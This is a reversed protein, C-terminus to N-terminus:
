FLMSGYAPLFIMFDADDVAGDHNFDASCGEPMQPDACLMLDYQASFLLFDADDVQGDANIDAIHAKVKVEVTTSISEGCETVFVAHFLGADSHQINAIELQAPTGDTPSPFSFVAGSVNGGGASAGGPGNVLDVFGSVDDFRQWKAAVGDYSAAPASELHLTEGAVLVAPSPQRAIWPTNTATYRAFYASVNDGAVTFNGGAAFGDPLGAMAQVSSSGAGSVGAGVAHWSSDGNSWRAINAASVGNVKAFQGGALFDGNGLALLCYVSPSPSDFTGLSTWQAASDAWRFVKNAAAAIVDGNQLVIVRNVPSSIGPGFASWSSTANNWRAINTAPLGGAKVFSGSVVVDGDFFFAIGTVIGSSGGAGTLGSGLPLWQETSPNWRAIGSLAQQGSRTFQGGAFIDGDPSVAVKLVASSFGAAMMQWQSAAASWRAVNLATTGGASTFGGGAIIDGSSLAAVSTVQGNMGTGLSSWADSASDWHVVNFNSAQVANMFSRAAILDGDPMSLLDTTSGFIEPGFPEWTEAPLKWLAIRSAALDGATQFDGGAVIGAPTALVARVASLTGRALPSWTSTALDWRAINNATQGGATGFTGGAFVGGDASLALSVVIGSNGATGAIGAGLASWSATSENWRAIRSVAVGGATSFSGGVILDNGPLVVIANVLSNGTGSGLSSWTSTAVNWRAINAAPSGGATSFRGGAVIDGGALVALSAVFNNMGTGLTSWASNAFNWIAIRSAPAGGAATFEGGVVLDGSATLALARVDNNVGSGLPLWSSTTPNWRAINSAAVTGVTDFQGGIVFSGDPLVVIADVHGDTGGGIASWTQTQSEWMALNSAFTNGAITFSGGALMRPSLPGPGDPDWSALATM